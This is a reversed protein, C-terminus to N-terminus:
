AWTDVIEKAAGPLIGLLYALDLVTFRVRMQNAHLLCDLLHERTVGIDEARYAASRRALCDRIVEPPRIMKSLDRRLDDWASGKSLKAAAATWKAPKQSFQADVAGTIPGWFAADVKAQPIRFAPREVALVRRYLESALITAM